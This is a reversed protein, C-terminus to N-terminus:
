LGKQKDLDMKQIDNLYNLVFDKVFKQDKSVTISKGMEMILKPKEKMFKKPELRMVCTMKKLLWSSFNDDCDAVRSVNLITPCDCDYPLSSEFFWVFYKKDSTRFISAKGLNIGYLKKADKRIKVIERKLGELDFKDDFDLGLMQHDSNPIKGEVGLVLDEIQYKYYIRLVFGAQGIQTHFIWNTLPIPINLLM